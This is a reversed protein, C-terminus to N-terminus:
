NCQRSACLALVKKVYDKTEKYPPITNNYKKVAGEGANYSALVLRLKLNDNHLKFLEFLYSLYRAGGEINQSPDRRDRVGFRKATEPMLQMLGVAGARSVANPNYSSEVRIVSHLLDEYLGHRKAARDIIPSYKKKNNIFHWRSSSDNKPLEWGKWTRIMKEYKNNIPTDSFYTRNHKDVYKYMDAWVVSPTLLSYLIATCLLTIRNINM